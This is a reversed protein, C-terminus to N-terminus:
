RRFRCYLVQNSEPHQYSRCHHYSLAAIAEPVAATVWRKMVSSQMGCMGWAWCMLPMRWLRWGRLKGLAQLYGTLLMLFSLNFLLLL